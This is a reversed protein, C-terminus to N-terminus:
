HGNEKRLKDVVENYKNELLEIKEDYDEEDEQYSEEIFYIKTPEFGNKEFYNLYGIMVKETDEESVEYSTFGFAEIDPQFSVDHVGYKQESNETLDSFNPHKECEDLLNRLEPDNSPKNIYFYGIKSKLSDEISFYFTFLSRM